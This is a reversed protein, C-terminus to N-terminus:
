IFFGYIVIIFIIITRMIIKISRESSHTNIVKKEIINVFQINKIQLIASAIYWNFFRSLLVLFTNNGMKHIMHEIM